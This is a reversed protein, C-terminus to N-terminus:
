KKIYLTDYIIRQNSYIYITDHIVSQGYTKNCECNPDHVVSNEIYNGNKIGFNIYSHGDYFFKMIKSIEYKNINDTIKSIDLNYTYQVPIIGYVEDTPPVPNETKSKSSCSLSLFMAFVFVCGFILYFLFSKQNTLMYNKM